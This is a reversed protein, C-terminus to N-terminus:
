KHEEEDHLHENVRGIKKLVSIFRLFQSSSHEKEHDLFMTVDKTLEIIKGQM